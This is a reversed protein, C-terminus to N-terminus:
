DCLCKGEEPPTGAHEEIWEEEDQFRRYEDPNELRFAVYERRYQKALANNKDEEQRGVKAELKRKMADYM